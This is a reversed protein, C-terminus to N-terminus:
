KIENLRTRLADLTWSKMRAEESRLNYSDYKGDRGGNKSELLSLIEEVIQEKTRDVSQRAFGTISNPDAEILIEFLEATPLVDPNQTWRIIAEIIARENAECRVFDQHRNYVGQITERKANEMRAAAQAAAEQAQNRYGM